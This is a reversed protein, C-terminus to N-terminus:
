APGKGNVPPWDIVPEGRHHKDTRAAHLLATRDQPMQVYHEGYAAVGMAALTLADATDNGSIEARPFRKVTAVLCDDKSANGNGTLWKRRTSPTVVAYPLGIEWLRHRIMWHLGALNLHAEAGAMNALVGEVVALDCGIVMSAVEGLLFAIREHGRMPAPRLRYLMPTLDPGSIVAIGFSTLSPDLGAVRLPAALIETVAVDAPSTV